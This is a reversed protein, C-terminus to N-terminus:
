GTPSLSLSRSLNLSKDGTKKKKKGGGETNKKYGVPHVGARGPVFVLAHFLPKVALTIAQPVALDEGIHGTPGRRRQGRVALQYPHEAAAVVVTQGPTDFRGLAHQVDVVGDLGEVPRPLHANVPDQFLHGELPLLHFAAPAPHGGGRRELRFRGVRHLLALRSLRGQDAEVVPRSTGQPVRHPLSDVRSATVAAPCRDTLGGAQRALDHRDQVGDGEM